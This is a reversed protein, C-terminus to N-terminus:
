SSKKGQQVGTGTGQSRPKQETGATWSHYQQQGTGPSEIWAVLQERNM